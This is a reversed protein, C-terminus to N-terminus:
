NKQSQYWEIFDPLEDLPNLEEKDEAESVDAFDYYRVKTASDYEGLINDMMIFGFEVLEEEDYDKFGEGFIVLDLNGDEEFPLFFLKSTDLEINGFNLVFSERIPQRFAVVQWKTLPPAEAVVAKVNDFKDTDGDASIELQRKGDKVVNAEITLDPEAKNLQAKIESMIEDGKESEFDFLREEHESFWNWFEKITM